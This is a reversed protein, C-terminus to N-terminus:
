NWHQWQPFLVYPVGRQMCVRLTHGTGGAMPDPKTYFLAADAPALGADANGTVKLTDRLLYAAKAGLRAHQNRKQILSRNEPTALYTIEALAEEQVASLTQLPVVEYEARLNKKRHVASPTVLQMRSADVQSVGEAFLTDAGPANGSRFVAQPLREALLAGTRVLHAQHEAAVERSGELLIVPRAKGTLAQCFSDLSILEAEYKM